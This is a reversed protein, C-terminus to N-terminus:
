KEAKREQKEKRLEQRLVNFSDFQAEMCTVLLLLAIDMLYRLSYNWLLDASFGLQSNATVLLICVAFKFALAMRNLIVNKTNGHAFHYHRISM